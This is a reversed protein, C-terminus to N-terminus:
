RQIVPVAKARRGVEDAKAVVSAQQIVALKEAASIWLKMM